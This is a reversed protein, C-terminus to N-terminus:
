RGRRRTTKVRGANAMLTVMAQGGPVREIAFSGDASTEATYPTRRPRGSPGLPNVVITVEPVPSGDRKHVSGQVRAGQGLVIKVEAPGRAPDVDIAGTSGEAYAPHSVTVEVTGTAVGRLVFSGDGDTTTRPPPVFHLFSRPEATVEAGAVPVDGGDVVTGRVNGGTRLVVRGVDTAAGSKV